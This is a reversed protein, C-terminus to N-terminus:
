LECSANRCNECLVEKSDLDQTFFRGCGGGATSCLFTGVKEEKKPRKSWYYELIVRQEPNIQRIEEEAKGGLEWGHRTALRIDKTKVVDSGAREKLLEEFWELDKKKSFHVVRSVYNSPCIYAGVVKDEEEILSIFKSDESCHGYCKADNAILRSNVFQVLQRSNSAQGQQQM